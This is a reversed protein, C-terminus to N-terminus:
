RIMTKRVFELLDIDKYAGFNIKLLKRLNIIKREKKRTM